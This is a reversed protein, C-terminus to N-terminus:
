TAYRCVLMSSVVFRRAPVPGDDRCLPSLPKSRRPVREAGERAHAGAAAADRVRSCCPPESVYRVDVWDVGSGADCAHDGHCPRTPNQHSIGQDALAGYFQSKLKGSDAWNALVISLSSNRALVTAARWAGFRCARCLPNCVRRAALLRRLTRRFAVEARRPWQEHGSSVDLGM